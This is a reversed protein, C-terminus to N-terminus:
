RSSQIGEMGGGGGRVGKGGGSVKRKSNPTSNNSRRVVRHTQQHYCVPPAHHGFEQHGPAHSHMGRSRNPKQTARTSKATFPLTKYPLKKQTPKDHNLKSQHRRCQVTDQLQMRRLQIPQWYRAVAAKGRTHEVRHPILSVIWTSGASHQHQYPLVSKYVTLAHPCPRDSHILTRRGIEGLKHYHRRMSHIIVGHSWLSGLVAQRYTFLGGEM